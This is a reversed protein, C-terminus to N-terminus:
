NLRDTAGGGSASGALHRRTVAAIRRTLYVSGALVGHLARVLEETPDSKLLCALAGERIIRQIYDTDPHELLVAVRSREDAAVLDALLSLSGARDFSADLLVAEPHLKAHLHRAEKANAARGVITLDPEATILRLLADSVFSEDVALLLTHRPAEPPQSIKKTKLASEASRAYFRMQFCGCVVLDGDQLGVPGEVKAGNVFTGNTSRLDTLVPGPKAQNAILAHRRSVSADPLVLDCSDLRGITCSKEIMHVQGPAWELWVLGDSKSFVPM